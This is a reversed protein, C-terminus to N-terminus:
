DLEVFACAGYDSALHQWAYSTGRIRVMHPLSRQYRIVKYRVGTDPCSSENTDAETIQLITSTM